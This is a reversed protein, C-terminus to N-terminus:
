PTGPRASLCLKRSCAPPITEPIPRRQLDPVPDKPHSLMQKLTQFPKYPITDWCFIGHIMTTTQPFPDWCFIGHIMTTTQPITDWRFIGHIMTTTEPSQLAHQCHTVCSHSGKVVLSRPFADPREWSGGVASWVGCHFADVTMGYTLPTESDMLLIKDGRPM